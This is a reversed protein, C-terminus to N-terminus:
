KKKRERYAKRHFVSVRTKWESWYKMIEDPKFFFTEAEMGPIGVVVLGHNVRIGHQEYQRNIAGAYAALQVPYDYLHSKYRKPKDATKWDCVCLIGRYEALLDVTGAYELGHHFVPSEILRVRDIHKLVPKISEFYPLAEEPCETLDDKLYHEVQSHTITGRRCADETIQKANDAGIKERWKKLAIMSGRSRTKGLITTVSSYSNGSEDSYFRRGKKTIQQAKYKPLLDFSAM